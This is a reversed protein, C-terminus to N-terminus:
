GGLGAKAPRPTCAAGPLLPEQLLFQGMGCPAPRLSRGARRVPIALVLLQPETRPDWVFSQPRPIKRRLLIGFFLFLDRAARISIGRPSNGGPNGERPCQTGAFDKECRTMRSALDRGCPEAPPNLATSERLHAQKSLWPSLQTGKDWTYSPTGRGRRMWAPPPIAKRGGLTGAATRPLSLRRAAAADRKAKKSLNQSCIGVSQARHFAFRSVRLARVWSLECPLESGAFGNKSM